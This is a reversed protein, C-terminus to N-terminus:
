TVMLMSNDQHQQFLLELDTLTFVGNSLFVLELFNQLKPLKPSKFKKPLDPNESISVEFEVKVLFPDRELMNEKDKQFHLHM